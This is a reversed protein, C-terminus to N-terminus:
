NENNSNDASDNKSKAKAIVFRIIEYVIIVALLIFFIYFLWENLIPFFQLILTILVGAVINGLIVSICTSWFDLGIFVAVCTGTWAGTLPLPVAVFVFVALLKLWYSKSFKKSKINADKISSAKHRVRNEFSTAIKGFFKTSKLWKIVPTFILSLIPVILCSGLVSWAFASWNNLTHIGWFGPNSAFPIAGRLEIVPVMAILITALVVNDGFITSFLNNLFATM